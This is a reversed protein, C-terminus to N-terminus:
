AVAREGNTVTALGIFGIHDYKVVRSDYMVKFYEM